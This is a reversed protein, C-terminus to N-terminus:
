RQTYSGALERLGMERSRASAAQELLLLSCFRTRVAERGDPTLEHGSPAPFGVDFTWDERPHQRRVLMASTCLWGVSSVLVKGM